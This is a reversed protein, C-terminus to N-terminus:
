PMMAAACSCGLCWDVEPGEQYLSLSSREPCVVVHVQVGRSLCGHSVQFTPRNVLTVLATLRYIQSATDLHHVTPPKAAAKTPRGQANPVESVAKWGADSDMLVELCSLADNVLLKIVRRRQKAATYQQVQWHHVAQVGIGGAAATTSGPPQQSTAQIEPKAPLACGSLVTTPLLSLLASALEQLPVSATPSPGYHMLLLNTLGLLRIATGAHKLAIEASQQEAAHHATFATHVTEASTTDIQTTFLRYPHLTHATCAKLQAATATVTRNTLLELEATLAALQPPVCPQAADCGPAGESNVQGGPADQGAQAPARSAEACVTLLLEAALGQQEQIFMGDAVAQVLTGWAQRSTLEALLRPSRGAQMHFHTITPHLASTQILNLSGEPLAHQTCDILLRNPQSPTL